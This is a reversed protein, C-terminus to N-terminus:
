FINNAIIGLIIIQPVTVVPLWLATKKGVNHWLLGIETYDTAVGAM